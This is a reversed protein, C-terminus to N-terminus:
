ATASHAVSVGRKRASAELPGFSREGSGWFRLSRLGRKEGLKKLTLLAPEANAGLNTDHVVAM